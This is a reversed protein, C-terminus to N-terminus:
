ESVVQRYSEPNWKPRNAANAIELGLYFMLKVIRSEKEADIKGVEDSPRHYDEHTGNFFFLIPVGRRAFNIHDSRGYFNQEPWLDDITAMNLEPHEATVRNLTEGLDSHEKGIVVITDPWNRGVMDANLDAVIQEIPVPPNAAFYESGWMGKEEGSVTLFIISRKPRPDLKAFAEALEVVAITGSADDDAGNYISDGNVATGVGDHDMHGSFVIYEHKLVPDSGELIGVSNPASLEEVVTYRLDMTLQLDPLQTVTFPREANARVAALDYGHRRLLSAVTADRVELSLFGGDEGIMSRPQDQTAVVRNWYQDNRQGVVIVAAPNRNYLGRFVQQGSPGPAQVWLVISGASIADFVASDGQSGDVVVVSGTVPQSGSGSRVVFDPGAHWTPGGGVRIESVAVNLAMRRIAYRQIFTGGDGGPKLGFRQFEGAIYEATEDLEPSPTNRGRMSDDAIVGIRHLIDDPTISRVANAVSQTSQALLATPVFLMLTVARIMRM